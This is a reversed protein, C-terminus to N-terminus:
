KSELTYVGDWDSPPPEHLYEHCRARLIEAPQDTGSVLMGDLTEIAGSFDLRLYRAFAEEYLRIRGAERADLTGAPGLLEYVAVGQEKGKVRIRDLLRTDFEGAILQYTEEGLMIKTGYQKNASELRSALNVADGMVTYNFVNTAGMNGALVRGTNVGVRMGLPAIGRAAWRENLRHLNQLMNWAATVGQRAHAPDPVPVGFFCMVADGIFKDLTGHQAQIAALMENFYETLTAHLQLPELRETLSTFGVLDSFLITSDRFEGYLNLTDPKEILEAVVAPSIYHGFAKQIFRKERDVVAYRYTRESVLFMFLASLPTVVFSTYGGLHFLLFQGAGYLGALLSILAIGRWHPYRALVPAAIGLAIVFILFQAAYPFPRLYRERLLTDVLTAHVEVGPIQAHASNVFPYAFHDAVEMDPPSALNFGILVVKDRFYEPPLWARYDIAQYYSVTPISRPSGLFNIMLPAADGHPMHFAAAPGPFEGATGQRARYARALEVAFPWVGQRSLNARRIFGDDDLPMWVLGTAEAAELLVPIPQVPTLLQYRADDVRQRDEALIVNGAEAMAAAFEADADDGNGDPESFLVDFGIVAAGAEKLARVLEAHMTRPWPWQRNFEQMSLEDIAVIVIDDPPAPNEILNRWRFFLDTTRYELTQWLRAACAVLFYLTVGALILLIHLGQRRRRSSKESNM